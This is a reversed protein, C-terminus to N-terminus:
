ARLIRAAQAVGRVEGEADGQPESAHRHHEAPDLQGARGHRQLDAALCDIMAVAAAKSATYAAAGAAHDVAAKSAVNMIAGNGQKVMVRAAARALMFGARLNLAVQQESVKTEM